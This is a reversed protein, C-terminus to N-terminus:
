DEAHVEELFEAYPGYPGVRLTLDDRTVMGVLRGEDDVIPLRQVQSDEMREIAEYLDDEPHCTLVDKTMVAEVPTTWPDIGGAIVRTSVDRDTLIGLLRGGEGVIPLAGVEARAMRYVAAVITETPGCTVPNPTMVKACRLM